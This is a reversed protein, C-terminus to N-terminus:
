FPKWWGLHHLIKDMLLIMKGGFSNLGIGRMFCTWEVKKYCSGQCGGFIGCLGWSWPKRSLGGSFLFGHKVQFHDGWFFMARGSFGVWTWTGHSSKTPPVQILVCITEPQKTPCPDNNKNCPNCCFRQCQTIFKWGHSSTRKEWRQFLFSCPSLLTPQSHYAALPDIKHHLFPSWKSSM